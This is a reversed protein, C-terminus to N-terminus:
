ASGFGKGAQRAAALAKRITDDTITVGASAAAKELDKGSPLKGGPWAAMLAVITGLLSNDTPLAVNVRPLDGESYPFAAFLPAAWKIADAPHFFRAHGYLRDAATADTPSICPLVRAIVARRIEEAAQNLEAQTQIPRAGGPKLGCCLETLEGESWLSKNPWQERTADNLSGDAQTTMEANASALQRFEAPMEWGIGIAWRGFDRISVVKKHRPVSLNGATAIFGREGINGVVVALRDLFEQAEELIPGESAGAMWGHPSHKVKKPDINLSLAVAGLLEVTPLNGWVAWNPKRDMM